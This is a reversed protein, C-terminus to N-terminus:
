AGFLADVEDSALVIWACVVHRREIVHVACVGKGTEGSSLDMPAAHRECGADLVELMLRKEESRVLAVTDAKQKPGVGFSSTGQEAIVHTESLGNLDWQMREAMM